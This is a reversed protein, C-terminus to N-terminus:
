AAMVEARARQPGAEGDDEEDDNDADASAAPL